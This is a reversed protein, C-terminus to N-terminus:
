PLPEWLYIGADAELALSLRGDRLTYSRVRAVDQALRVDIAGPGCMARTMAGPSISLSGGNASSPQAQWKSNARNCDLRMALTGDNMFQLTYNQVNPPVVTGISDDSSQFHVLRWSTGALPSVPESIQPQRMAYQPDRCQHVTGAADTWTMDPGKGRLDHGNGAYHIGSGSPQQALQASVGDAELVASGDTFDVSMSRGRECLFVVHHADTAPAAAEHNSSMCGALMVALSAIASLRAM